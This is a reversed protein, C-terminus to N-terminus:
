RPAEEVTAAQVTLQPAEVGLVAVCAVFQPILSLTAMWPPGAPPDPAAWRLLRPPDAPASMELLRPDVSLGHGTAKLLAEKRTWVIARERVTVAREHEHLVVQDFGHFGPADGREIDVGVPGATSVAVVILREARALSVFPTRSGLGLVVPRGHRASGCSPCLRSLVVDDPSVGLVSAVTRALLPDGRAHDDAAQM